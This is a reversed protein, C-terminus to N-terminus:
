NMRRARIRQIVEVALTLSVVVALSALSLTSPCTGSAEHYLEIKSMNEEAQFTIYGTKDKALKLQAGDAKARWTEFYAEKVTVTANHRLGKLDILMRDPTPRDLVWSVGQSPTIEVFGISKSTRYVDIKGDQYSFTADLVFSSGNFLSTAPSELKGVLVWKIALLDADNILRRWTNTRNQDNNATELDLIRYDNIKNVEDLLKEQPYWGDILPKGTYRPLVYIWLPCRIALVRAYDTEAKLYEVLERPIEANATSYPLFESVNQTGSYYAKVAGGVVTVALMLVVAAKSRLRLGKWGKTLRTLSLAALTCMPVTLFLWFRHVDLRRWIWSLIPLNVFPAAQNGLSLWFFVVFWLLLLKTGFPTGGDAKTMLITRATLEVFFAVILIQGPLKIGLVNLQEGLQFLGMGVFLLAVSSSFRRLTRRSTAFVSTGVALLSLALQPAGLSLISVDFLFYSLRVFPFEVNRNYFPNGMLRGSAELFPVTWFASIALASLVTTMSIIWLRRDVHRASLSKAIVVLFLLGTILLASLHHILIIMVMIVTLAPSYLHPRTSESSRIITVILLCALPLSLINPFRDYFLYNEIVSPSLSFLLAAIASSKTDIRLQRCLYFVALPAVTYAAADVIKYALTPTAGMLAVALVIWYGLPPYFLVFATGGYWDPSWAPIYGLKTMSDFMFLVRYLHSTSDVGEPVGSIMRPLAVIVSFLIGALLIYRTDAMRRNANSPENM